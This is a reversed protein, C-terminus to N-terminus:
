INNGQSILSEILRESAKKFIKIKQERKEKTKAVFEDSFKIKTSGLQIEKVINNDKVEICRMTNTNM